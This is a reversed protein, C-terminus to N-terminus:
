KENKNTLLNKECIVYRLLDSDYFKDLFLQINKEASNYNKLKIDTKIKYLLLEDTLNDNSIDKLSHVVQELQNTQYLKQIYM